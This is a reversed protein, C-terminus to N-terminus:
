GRISAVFSAVKDKTDLVLVTFGLEQLEKHRKKQQARADKGPAKVEVFWIRGGPMLVLQDPVGRTGPSVWKRCLGGAEAVEDKLYGEVNTERMTTM